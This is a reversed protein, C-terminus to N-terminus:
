NARYLMTLGVVGSTNASAAVAKVVIQRNNTADVPVRTMARLGAADARAAGASVASVTTLWAVGGSATTDIDTLGANVIGISFTCSGGMADWDLVLDVPTHGAPLTQMFILDGAALIAPSVTPLTYQARSAVLDSGSAIPTSQGGLSFDTFRNAM